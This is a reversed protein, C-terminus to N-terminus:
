IKINSALDVNEKGRLAAVRTRLCGSDDNTRARAKIDNRSIAHGPHELLRLRVCGVEYEREVRASWHARASRVITRDRRRPLCPLRTRRFPTSSSTGSGCLHRLISKAPPEAVAIAMGQPSRAVAQNEVPMGLM